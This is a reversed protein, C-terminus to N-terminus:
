FWRRKATESQLCLSTGFNSELVERQRCDTTMIHTMSSHPFIWYLNLKKLCNYVAESQYISNRMLCEGKIINKVFIICLIFPYIHNKQAIKRIQENM